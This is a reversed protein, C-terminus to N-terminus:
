CVGPRRFRPVLNGLTAGRLNNGCRCPWFRGICTCTCRPWISISVQPGGGRGGASIGEGPRRDYAWDEVTAVITMLDPSAPVDMPVWGYHTEPGIRFGVGRYRDSVNAWHGFVYPWGFSTCVRAVGGNTVFRAGPGILSGAPLAHTPDWSGGVGDATAYPRRWAEGDFAGGPATFV